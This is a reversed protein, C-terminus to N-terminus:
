TTRHLQIRFDQLWLYAPHDKDLHMQRFLTVISQRQRIAQSQLLPKCLWWKMLRKGFDTSNHRTVMEYLTHRSFLHGSTFIDLNQITTGDLKMFMKESLESMVLSPISATLNFQHLHKALAGMTVIMSEPWHLIQGLWDRNVVCIFIHVYM